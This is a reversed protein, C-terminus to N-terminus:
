PLRAATSSRVQASRAERAPGEGPPQNEPSAEAVEVPAGEALISLDGLIVQESGNTPAWPNEAKTATPRQLNTVEIWNGDSIAVSLDAQAVAVDIKSL